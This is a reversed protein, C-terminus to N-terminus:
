AVREGMWKVVRELGVGRSGKLLVADGAKILGDLTPKMEEVSEFGHKEKAGGLEALLARCEHGVGVVVDIGTEALQRGLERHYAESTPGLERMDGIVAVRRGTSPFRAFERVARSASEPNSNYADNIITVGALDLREMRM